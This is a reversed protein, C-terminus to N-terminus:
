PSLPMRCFASCEGGQLPILVLRHARLPHAEAMLRTPGTGLNRCRPLRPLTAITANNRPPNAQVLKPPVVDKAHAGSLYPMFSLPMLLPDCLSLSLSLSLSHSLSLTLTRGRASRRWRFIRTMWWLPFFASGRRSRPFPDSVFGSWTFRVVLVVLLTEGGVSRRPPPSKDATTTTTAMETVKYKTKSDQSVQGSPLKRKVVPPLM